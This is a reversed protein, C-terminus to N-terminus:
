VVGRSLHLERQPQRELRWCQPGGPLKLVCPPGRRRSIQWYLGCAYIRPSFPSPLQIRRPVTPAIGARDHHLNEIKLPISTDAWQARVM